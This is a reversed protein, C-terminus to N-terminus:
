GRLLDLAAKIRKTATEKTLAEAIQEPPPSKEEGSLAYRVPWFVDGNSFKNDKVIGDLTGKIINAQWTSIQSFKEATIELARVTTEKDSKRFIIKEKDLDPESV